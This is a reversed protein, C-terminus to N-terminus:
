KVADSIHTMRRRIAAELYAKVQRCGAISKQMAAELHDLSLRSDLQMYLVEESRAKVVVPLYAGGANQEVQTLDACLEKQVFGSSCAVFIDSMSVGAEM